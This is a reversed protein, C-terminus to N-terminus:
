FGENRTLIKKLNNKARQLLSEIAKETMDMIQAIEKQSLGEVHKLIFASQQNEPLQKIAKFLLAAHEKQELQIGPHHFTPPDHILKGTQNNFLSSIFGFRKQRNRSRIRDLCKNVTIRYVWTAASSRNQFGAASRYIEVFVDQTAEEAEEQHQLHALCTNFVQDKFLEYLQGLANNDGNSLLQLLEEPLM